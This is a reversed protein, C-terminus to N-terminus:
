KVSVWEKINDDWMKTNSPLMQVFGGGHGVRWGGESFKSVFPSGPSHRVFLRRYNAEIDAGVIFNHRIIQVSGNKYRALIQVLYDGSEMYIDPVEDPMYRQYQTVVVNSESGGAQINEDNTMGAYLPHDGYTRRLHGVNVPTRDVTGTFYAAFQTAVLNANRFFGSYNGNAATDVSNLNAGHDTILIVGYGAERYQAFASISAPPIMRKNTHAGDLLIVLSYGQLEALTPAVEGNSYDSFDKIVLQAGAQQAIYEFSRKFGASAESKVAYNGDQAVVTGLLLIKKAAGPKTVWNIANVMYKFAATIAGTPTQNNYFKPFGGDYVVRGLGDQTVAIFPNPPSLTDYAIYESLTPPLGNVTFSVFEVDGPINWGVSIPKAYLGDPYNLMDKGTLQEHWKFRLRATSGDM